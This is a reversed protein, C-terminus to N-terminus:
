DYHTIVGKVSGDDRIIAGFDVVANRLHVNPGIEAGNGVLCGHLSSNSNIKVGDM